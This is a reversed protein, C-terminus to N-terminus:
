RNFMSIFCGIHYHSDNVVVDFENDGSTDFNNGVVGYQRARDNSLTNEVEIDSKHNFCYINGAVVVGEENNKIHGECMDCIVLKKVSM